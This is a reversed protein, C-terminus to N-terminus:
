SSTVFTSETPTIVALDPISTVAPPILATPTTVAVLKTPSRVPFAVPRVPVGSIVTPLITPDASVIEPIDVSVSKLSEDIASLVVITSPLVTLRAYLEPPPLTAIQVLGDPAIVRFTVLIGVSLEKSLRAIENATM